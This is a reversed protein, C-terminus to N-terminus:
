IQCFLKNFNDIALPINTISGLILRVNNKEILGVISKGQESITLSLSVIAPPWNMLYTTAWSALM